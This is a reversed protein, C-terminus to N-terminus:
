DSEMEKEIEELRTELEAMAMDIDILYELIEKRQDASLKLDEIISYLELFVNDMQSVKSLAQKITEM